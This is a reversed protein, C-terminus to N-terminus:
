KLAACDLKQLAEQIAATEGAAPPTHEGAQGWIPCLVYKMKPSLRDAELSLQVAREWRGTHIYGQIFPTLEPATYKTLAYGLQFAPEGLRVIEEWDSKQLALEAKEFYYCWAHPLEKGFIVAPLSAPPQADVLILNPDSTNLADMYLLDPKNPWQSDAVPDFIKLCRPPNYVFMLAQSTSGNFQAGRYPMNIPTNPSFQELTRGLRADLNLMLFSMDFTKNEPAYIWNLPATLSNDTVYSFPLEPTMLTTGPKLGPVRWTLQWFFERQFTWDQRYLVATQYHWGAALGALLAVIVATQWRRAAILEILGGLVLTAGTMLLLTFREWPFYLDIHLNTVWIPVGGALMAFLGLLIAGLAWRRDQTPRKEAEAPEDLRLRLLFFFTLTTTLIFVAAYLLIVYWKSGMVFGVQTTQLWALASSQALDGTVTKALNILAELPGARLQDLIVISARPTPHSAKWAIFIALSVLYPLWRLATWRIRKGWGTVLPDITLWLLVPRLLELGVFYEVISMCLASAAVSFIMLPWFRRRERNALIMAGFSLFFIALVISMQSYTIPIYHHTFGPYLLFLVTMWTIQFTKGPWLTKLMWWFALGSLVHTFIGFLQWAVMSKGVLSTTLVFLLGLFPRDITFVKPFVAPGYTQLFWLSPWDDWYIGLWPIVPGFAFLCLLLFVFPISKKTFLLSRMM